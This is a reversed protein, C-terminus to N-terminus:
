SPGLIGDLERYDPLTTDIARGDRLVIRNSQPRSLLETMSRASFLVLDAAAGLRLRGHDVGMVRAPTSTIARPWDGVPHDLHAIRTAERYVELPDLDGYAYFPDRTNDSSIAVEIGAAKLEHLLTIGRLRPTRAAARDQLYLNCMPLSVVAIGAEAVLGITASAEAEPQCALSCCHGVTVRGSFRHRITAEAIHRLSRAGPDQTEDVHFDLDLGDESALAFLTDLSQDLEPVMHTVGGMVGGYEMLAARVARMHARDPVHEISFLAAAQLEIRGRWAERAAAFVPWSIATQRGISDLHTRMASTGHAFACRLAFDMRVAVDESSWHNERDLSVNDLAAFFTGDSNRRRPWIHGKDLHTHLEVFTPFVLGGDMDFQPIDHAAAPGIAVIRGKAITITTKALGDIDGELRIGEVLCAPVRANTLSLSSAAANAPFAAISM